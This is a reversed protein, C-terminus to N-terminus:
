IREYLTTPMLLKTTAIFKPACEPCILLQATAPMEDFKDNLFRFKTILWGPTPHEPIATMCDSFGCVKELDDETTMQHDGKDEITMQHDGKRCESGQVELM